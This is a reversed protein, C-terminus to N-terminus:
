AKEQAFPPIIAAALAFVAAMIPANTVTLYAADDNVIGVALYCFAAAMIIFVACAAWYPASSAGKACTVVGGITCIVIAAWLVLLFISFTLLMELDNNGSSGNLMAQPLSYLDFLSYESKIDGSGLFVIGMNVKIWSASAALTGIIGAICCLISVTKNVSPAKKPQGQPVASAPNSASNQADAHRTIAAGCHQCRNGPESLSHGCDSCFNKEASAEAGCGPCCAGKAFLNGGCKSCFRPQLANGAEVPQLPEAM